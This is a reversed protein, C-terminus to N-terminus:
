HRGAETVSPAAAVSGWRGALARQVRYRKLSTLTARRDSARSRRSMETTSARATRNQRPDQPPAARRTATRHPSHYSFATREQSEEGADVRCRRQGPEVSQSGHRSRPWRPRTTPPTDPSHRRIPAPARGSGACAARCGARHTAFRLRSPQALVDLVGAAFDLALLLHQEAISEFGHHRGTSVLYQLGARHRQGTRWSFRRVPECGATSMSALDRVPCVVRAGCCKWTAAGRRTWGDGLALM